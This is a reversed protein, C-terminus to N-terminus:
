RGQVKKNIYGENEKGLSETYILASLRVRIKHILSQFEMIRKDAKLMFMEFRVHIQILFVKENRLLQWSIKPRQIEV